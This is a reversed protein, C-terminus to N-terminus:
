QANARAHSCPASLGASRQSGHRWCGFVPLQDLGDERARELAVRGIARGPEVDGAGVARLQALADVREHARMLLGAIEKREVRRRWAPSRVEGAQVDTGERQDPFDAAAAHADDVQGLTHVASERLLDGHLDDVRGNTVVVDSRPEVRLALDQRAEGMRVDDRQEVRTHGGVVPRVQHHLQDDAPRQGHIARRLADVQRAPERQEALQAARDLVRVLVADHM